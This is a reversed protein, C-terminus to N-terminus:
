YSLDLIAKLIAQLWVLLTMNPPVLFPVCFAKLKDNNQPSMSALTSFHRSKHVAVLSLAMTLPPSLNAKAGWFNPLEHFLVSLSISLKM